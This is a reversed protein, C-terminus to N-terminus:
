KTRRLAQVSKYNSFLVKEAAAGVKFLRNFTYVVDSSNFTDGNQFVVGQRLDFIYHLGNSSVSYGTALEPVIQGSNTTDALM